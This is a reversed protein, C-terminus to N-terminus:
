GSIRALSLSFRAIPEGDQLAEVTVPLLAPATGATASELEVGTPQRPGPVATLVTAPELEGFKTFTVNLEALALASGSAFGSSLATFHALQRAAEALVMGPLHDQPHDFMSPHRAPVLLEAEATGDHAVPSLLVVNEPDTRGVLHPAAASGKPHLSATTPLPAGGRTRLRMERYGAPDRFRLGVGAHGVAVGDVLFRIAHDLGVVRGARVRQDTVTIDLELELPTSGLALLSPQDIHVRLFTLIFKDQAPIGFFEHAGALTAQRATELLLITDHTRPRLLHDGFYAHSRPFQAAAAYHSDGRRRLDTVFVEGLADRHVLARNVTAAFSLSPGGGRPLPDPRAAPHPATAPPPVHATVPTPTTTM